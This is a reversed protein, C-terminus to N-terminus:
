TKLLNQGYELEYEERLKEYTKTMVSELYERLEKRNKIFTKEM